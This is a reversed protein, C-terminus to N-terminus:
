INIPKVRHTWGFIDQTRKTQIHVIAKKIRSAYSNELAPLEYFYDGYQFSKIPSVVAATGTGFMELLTGQQAYGQIEKASIDRVQYSIKKYDLWQLVSKRTIGDLIRDSTPATLLTDGVRFFINMTGAEELNQHTDSDMWVVQQFGKQQALKTPCFQGAYNGAFKAFGVGGSASRSYKEEFLVNVDGSYYSQVPACIIMFLYENSPSASLDIGNAIMFPRVYLSSGQTKQIWRSDLNLLTELGEFFLDEPFEPMCIRAASKNLRRLNDHPRFLWISEDAAKYAKMGEFVAQGYHFVKSSPAFDIAGYPQIHVKGWTNNKYSCVLMHDTFETGFSLNDFDVNAIRSHKTKTITVM